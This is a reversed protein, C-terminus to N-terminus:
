FYGLGSIATAFLPSASTGIAPQVDINFHVYDESKTSDIMYANNPDATIGSMDVGGHTIVYNRLYEWAEIEEASQHNISPVTVICPLLWMNISEMQAKRAEFKSIITQAAIISTPIQNWSAIDEFGGDFTQQLYSTQNTIFWKLRGDYWDFSMAGQGLSSMQFRQGNLAETNNIYRLWEGRLGTQGVPPIGCTRSDGIIFVRVIPNNSVHLSYAALGIGFGQTGEWTASINIDSDSMKPGWPIDEPISGNDISGLVIWPGGAPLQYRVIFDENQNLTSLLPVEVITISPTQAENDLVFVGPSLIASVPSSYTTADFGYGGDGVCVVVSGSIEYMNPFELRIKDVVRGTNNKIRYVFTRREGSPNFWIGGDNIGHFSHALTPGVRYWNDPITPATWAGVPMPNTTVYSQATNSPTSLQWFTAGRKAICLEGNVNVVQIDGSTGNPLNGWAVSSSSQGSGVNISTFYIKAM